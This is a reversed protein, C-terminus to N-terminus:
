KCRPVTAAANVRASIFGSVVLVFARAARGGAGCRPRTYIGPKRESCISHRDIYIFEARIAIIRCSHAYVNANHSLHCTVWLGPASRRGREGARERWQSNIFHRDNYGYRAREFGNANYNCNILLQRWIIPCGGLRRVTLCERADLPHCVLILKRADWNQM